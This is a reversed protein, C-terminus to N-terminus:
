LQVITVQASDGIMDTVYLTNTGTAASTEYDCQTTDGSPTLSATMAGLFVTWDYPALGGSATFTGTGAAGGGAPINQTGSPSIQLPALNQNITAAATRGESDEAIVTNPGLTDATYVADRDGNRHIDGADDDAVTWRVPPDGGDFEFAVQQDIFTITAASPILRPREIGGESRARSSYPTQEFHEDIEDPQEQECATYVIGGIGLLLVALLPSLARWGIRTKMTM